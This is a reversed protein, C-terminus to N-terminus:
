CCHSAFAVPAVTLTFLWAYFLSGLLNGVFVLGWNSLLEGPGIRGDRLAVVVEAADPAM